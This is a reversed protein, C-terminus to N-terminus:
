FRSEPLNRDCTSMSFGAALSTATQGSLIIGKQPPPTRFVNLMKFNTTLVEFVSKAYLVGVGFTSIRKFFFRFIQCCKADNGCM